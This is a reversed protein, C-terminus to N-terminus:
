FVVIQHYIINWNNYQMLQFKMNGGNRGAEWTRHMFLDSFGIFCNILLARKGCKVSEEMFKGAVKVSWRM